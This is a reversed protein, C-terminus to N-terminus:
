RDFAASLPFIFFALLFCSLPEIPHPSLQMADLNKYYRQFFKPMHFHLLGDTRNSKIECWSFDCVASIFGKVQKSVSKGTQKSQVSTVSWM